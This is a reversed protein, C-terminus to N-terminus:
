KQERGIKVKRGGGVTFWILAFVGVAVFFVTNIHIGFIYDLSEEEKGGPAATFHRNGSGKTDSGQAYAIVSVPIALALTAAGAAIRRLLHMGARAATEGSSGPPSLRKPM